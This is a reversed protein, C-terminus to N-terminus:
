EKIMGMNGIKGWMLQHKRKLFRIEEEKQELEEEKKALLKDKKQAEEQLELLTDKLLANEEQLVLDQTQSQAILQEYLFTLIQLTKELFIPELTKSNMQIAILQNEIKQLFLNIGDKIFIFTNENESVLNTKEEIEQKTLNTAQLFDELPMYSM